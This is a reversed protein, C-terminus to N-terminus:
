GGDGKRQCAVGAAQLLASVEGPTEEAEMREGNGVVFIYSGSRGHPAISAVVATNILLQKGTGPETLEIFPGTM